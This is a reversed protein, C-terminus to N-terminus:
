EGAGEVREWFWEKGSDHWGGVAAEKERELMALYAQTDRQQAAWKQSFQRMEAKEGSKATPQRQQAIEIPKLPRHKGPSYAKPKM